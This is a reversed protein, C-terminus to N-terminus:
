AERTNFFPKIRDYRFVPGDMCVFEPGLQCHGCFGVACHMNRELSVYLRDDDVERKEFERQVFRMMVEPGCILGITRAPDLKVRPFLATVLGISGRWSDDGRDVTVLVQMRGAAQWQELESGFLVDGPTRAGYLLVVQGYDSRHRALHYLVPRLPALGIGGAVIVVDQGRAPEVPWASGFPGRVGVADGAGLRALANTVSGVARITHLIAGSDACDGSLSIAAEGVGFVYLMNFQGPLAAFGSSPPALSLTFTDHTERQCARVRLVEPVMPPRPPSATALNVAM